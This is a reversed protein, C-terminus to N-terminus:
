KKLEPGRKESHRRGWQDTTTGNKVQSGVGDIDLETVTVGRMRTIRESYGQGQTDRRSQRVPWGSSERLTQRYL